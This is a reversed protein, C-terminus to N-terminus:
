SLRRPDFDDLRRRSARRRAIEVLEPIKPHGGALVWGVLRALDTRTWEALPRYAWPPIDVGIENWPPDHPPEDTYVKMEWAVVVPASAPGEIVPRIEDARLRM